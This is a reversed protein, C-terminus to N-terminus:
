EVVLDGSLYSLLFAPLLDEIEVRQVLGQPGSAFPMFAAPDLILTETAQEVILGFFVTPDTPHRLVAIRTSLRRLAPRGLELLSLDVAPIFRGRFAFSGTVATPAGRVPQLAVLSVLEIIDDTALVFAETGIRFHLFLM